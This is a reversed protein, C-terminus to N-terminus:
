LLKIVCDADFGFGSTPGNAPNGKGTELRMELLAATLMELAVVDSDQLFSM